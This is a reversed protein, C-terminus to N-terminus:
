RPNPNPEQGNRTCLARWTRLDIQDSIWQVSGGMMLVQVGHQHYSRSTIAAYTMTHHDTGELQNTWDVDYPQGNHEVMVKTNPTFYGTFGTQHVRGDVWQTHGERPYFTGGLSEINYATPRAPRALGANLYCPTFAKVEAMAVTHTLGDLIDRPRFGRRPRFAGQGPFNSCEDHVYWDGLNSAYNLPYHAERGAQEKAYDDIESPCLYTKIRISTLKEPGFMTTYDGAYRYSKDFDLQKEIGSRELYPLIQAHVSWGEFTADGLMETPKWSSPYHGYTNEFLNIALGIQRMNNACSIKRATARAAVVAPMLLAMLIGIIAIVVLLEILTMGSRGSKATRKM